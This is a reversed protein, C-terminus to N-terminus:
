RVAGALPLDATVTWGGDPDSAASCTGGLLAARETMGVIGYGATGAAAAVGDDHVTLRLGGASPEVRVTVRTAARAHRRANTVSEQAIRYVAAAVPAPVSGLDSAVQVDIVPTEPQDAALGALDALTPTPTPALAAAEHRRLGRVMSRMESLTQSAEAEISRLAATAAGPDTGATALGAQAQIAIASVHHAVTDHLDRALDDRERSRAADLERMRSAARFRLLLGLTVTLMIIAFSGIAESLEFPGVFVSFSTSVLMLALGLVIAKGSGWRFVSYVLLLVYVLTYLEPGGSILRAGEILAFSILLMLLPHSRRWLLTPAAAATVLVAVLMNPEGSRVLGEFVAILPVAAVLLWDRWVRKPPRPLAPPANWLSRLRGTM